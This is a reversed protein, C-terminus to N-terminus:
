GSYRLSCVPVTYRIVSDFYGRFWIGFLGRYSIYMRGFVYVVFQIRIELIGLAADVHKCISAEVDPRIVFEVPNM